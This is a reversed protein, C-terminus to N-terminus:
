KNIRKMEDIWVYVKAKKTFILANFDLYSSVLKNTIILAIVIMAGYFSDIGILLSVILGVAVLILDIFDLGMFSPNKSLFIPYKAKM